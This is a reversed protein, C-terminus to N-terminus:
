PADTGGPLLQDSRRRAVRVRRAGLDILQQGAGGVDASAAPLRVYVDSTPRELALPLLAGFLWGIAGLVGSLLVPVATRGASLAPALPGVVVQGNWLQIGLALGVSVGALLGIWAWAGIQIVAIGEATSVEESSASACVQAAYGRSRLLEVAQRARETSAFTGVVWRNGPPVLHSTQM